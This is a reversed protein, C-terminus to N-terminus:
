IDNCIGAVIMDGSCDIARVTSCVPMASKGVIVLYCENLSSPCSYKIPQHGYLYSDGRGNVWKYLTCHHM